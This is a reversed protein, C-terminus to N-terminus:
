GGWRISKRDVTNYYLLSFLDLIVRTSKNIVQKKYFLIKNKSQSIITWGFSSWDSQKSHGQLSRIVLLSENIHLLILFVFCFLYHSVVKLIRIALIQNSEINLNIIVHLLNLCPFTHRQLQHICSYLYIYLPILVWQM